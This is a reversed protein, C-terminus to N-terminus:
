FPEEMDITTDVKANLYESKQEPETKIREPMKKKPTSVFEVRRWGNAKVKSILESAADFQMHQITKVDYWRKLLNIQPFSIEKAEWRRKMEGILEGAEKFTFGDPNIEHKRLFATMAPTLTKQLDWGRPKQPQVQLANFIDAKVMKYKVTPKIHAKRAAEEEEKRKKEAQNKEEEELMKEIREFKGGKRMQLNVAQVVEESYKGGLIDAPTILKHTGSNGPFDLITVFPKASQGIMMRRLLGTPVENLRFAVDNHPRTGRGIWQAYRSRSKTPCALAVYHIGFYDFGEGFCNCNWLWQIKGKKFDGVIKKREEKDTGGHVYASMGPRWRNFIESAIRAQEVSATFGIGQKDGIIEYTAKTIGAMVKERRLIKDLDQSNLGDETRASRVESYDLSEIPVTYPEIPVLWGDQIADKVEYEFAVHEFVSGLAEEDARDPTATVGLLFLKPNQFLYDKVRKWSPSTAHHSEDFVVFKFDDPLFKTMRGGGDGGSTLTQVSSVIVNANPTWLHGNKTARYEGMEVEVNKGTLKEISDRAQWALEQRHVVFMSREPQFHQILWGAIATKGCGTPVVVLVARHGAAKAALM